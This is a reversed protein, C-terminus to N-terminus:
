LFNKYIREVKRMEKEYSFNEEIIKRATLALPKVEEKNNIVNEIIKALEKYDGNNFLFGNKNNRIWLKNDSNNTIIILREFSMAEATSSSLGGDSLSTSVYIDINNYFDLMENKNLLGLLSVKDTLKEKKIFDSFDKQLSGDAAVLFKINRKKGCLIKAALLFTKVDYIKELKRNSGITIQSNNSFIKRTSKYINTDIGFMMISIKEKKAGLKISAEKLRISDCIIYKTRKFLIYLWLKKLAYNNILLDSGWPTLILNSKPRIFLTLLSHWGLYHIHVLSYKGFLLTTIIKFLDYINKLNYIKVLSKLENFENITEKNPHSTNIWIIENKKKLSFFRIWRASHISKSSAIYIITM